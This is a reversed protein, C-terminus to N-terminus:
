QWHYPYENMHYRHYPYKADIYEIWFRHYIYKIISIGPWETLMSAFFVLNVFFALDRFGERTKLRLTFKLCKRFNKLLDDNFVRTIICPSDFWRPKLFQGDGTRSCGNFKIGVNYHIRSLFSLRFWLQAYNHCIIMPKFLIKQQDNHLIRVPKQSLANM